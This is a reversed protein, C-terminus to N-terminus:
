ATPDSVAEYLWYGQDDWAGEILRERHLRGMEDAVERNSKGLIFAMQAASVQRGVIHKLIQTRLDTM